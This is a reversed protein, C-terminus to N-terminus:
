SVYAVIEYRGSTMKYWSMVFNNGAPTYMGESNKSDSFGLDFTGMGSDGCLFGSWQTSDEQLLTLGETQLIDFIGSLPISGFYRNITFANLKRNVANKNWRAIKM